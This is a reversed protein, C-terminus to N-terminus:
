TNSGWCSLNHQTLHNFTDKNKHEIPKNINININTDLIYNIDMQNNYFIDDQTKVNSENM